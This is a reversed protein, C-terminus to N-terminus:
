YVHIQAFELLYHLVSSGPTSCDRPDFLTFMVSHVVLTSLSFPSPPVLGSLTSLASGNPSEQPIWYKLVWSGTSPKGLPTLPLFGAEQQLLNLLRQNSGQTPFIEPPPFPMGSWYEQRSFGMSQSAQFDVTWLTVFLRVHSFRSLVCAHM